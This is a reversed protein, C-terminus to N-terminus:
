GNGTAPPEVTANVSQEFNLAREATDVLEQYTVVEVRSLHSNYVPYNPGDAQSLNNPRRGLACYQADPQRNGGNCVCSSPRVREDREDREDCITTSGTARMARLATMLKQAV